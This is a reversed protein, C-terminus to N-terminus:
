NSWVQKITVSASRCESCSMLSAIEYEPDSTKRPLPNTLLTGARGYISYVTTDSAKVIPSKVVAVEGCMLKVITGPPMLGIKTILVRIIKDDFEEDKKAFISKLANPTVNAARHNRTKVLASYVDAVALIRAGTAIQDGKLGLPYGSGALREHHGHVAQLWIPDIVGAQELLQRGRNPHQSLRERLDVSLAGKHKDLEAQISYQGLDRTLAACVLSLRHEQELGMSQAILETLVAGLMQHVVIPPSYLDLYPSAIAGNIDKGCIEQVLGAIKGIRAPVDIQEPNKLATEIVHKLNLILGRLQEFPSLNEQNAAANSNKQSAAEANSNQSAAAAVRRAGRAILRAIQSEMSIVTGHRYLLIGNEDHIAFPIPHGLVVDNQHLKNM